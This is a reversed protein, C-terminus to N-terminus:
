SDKTKIPVAPVGVATCDDPLDRIVVSGAGVTTGSGIRIDPIIRSGAGVFTNPGVRANSSFNVGPGIYTNPYLVTEHEITSNSYSVCNDHVEAFANVIVGPNLVIGRGLKADPSVYARQHIVNPTELGLEVVREFQERRVEMFRNSVGICAAALGHKEIAAPLDALTGLIPLDLLTTGQLAPSDDLYGVIQYRDAYSERLISVIVKAHQAAGLVILKAPTSTM